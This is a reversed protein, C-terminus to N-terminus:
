RGDQTRRNWTGRDLLKRLPCEWLPYHCPSTRGLLTEYCRQGAPLDVREKEGMGRRAVANAFLVQYDHGIVLMEDEVCDLIEQVGAIDLELSSKRTVPKRGRAAM